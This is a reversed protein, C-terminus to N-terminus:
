LNEGPYTLAWSRYLADITELIALTEDLPMLSSELNCAHLCRVIEAAEFQYGQGPSCHVFRRVDRHMLGLM